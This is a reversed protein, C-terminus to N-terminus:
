TGAHDARRRATASARRSSGRRPEEADVRPADVTTTSPRQTAQGEANTAARQKSRMVLASQHSGASACGRRPRPPRRPPRASPESSSASCPGSFPPTRAQPQPGLASPRAGRRAAGRLQRVATRRSACRPRAPAADAGGHRAASRRALSRPAQGADRGTSPAGARCRPRRRTRPHAAVTGAAGGAGGVGARRHVPPPRVRSAEPWKTMSAVTPATGAISGTKVAM